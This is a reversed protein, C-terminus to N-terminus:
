VLLVNSLPQPLARRRVGGVSFCYLRSSQVVDARGRGADGSSKSSGIYLLDGAPNVDRWDAGHAAGIYQAETQLREEMTLIRAM